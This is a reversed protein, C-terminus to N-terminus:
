VVKSNVLVVFERLSGLTMLEKLNQLSEYEEMGENLSEKRIKM